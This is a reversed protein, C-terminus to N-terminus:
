NSLYITVLRELMLIVHTHMEGVIGDVLVTLIKDTILIRPAFPSYQECQLHHMIRYM